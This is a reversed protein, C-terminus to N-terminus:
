GPLTLQISASSKSLAVEPEASVTINAGSGVLGLIRDVTREVSTIVTIDKADSAQFGSKMFEVTYVGPLVAAFRYRGQEDTKKTQKINTDQNTITVDVDPIPSKQQSTVTGSIFGNVLQAHVTSVAILLSIVAVAQVLRSSIKGIRRARFSYNLM